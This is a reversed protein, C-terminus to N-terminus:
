EGGSRHTPDKFTLPQHEDFLLLGFFVRNSLLLGAWFRVPHMTLSREGIFASRETTLSLPLLPRKAFIKPKLVETVFVWTLLTLMCVCAIGVILLSSAWATIWRPASPSLAYWGGAIGAVAGAVIMSVRTWRYRSM